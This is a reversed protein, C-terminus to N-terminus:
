RGQESTGSRRFRAASRQGSEEPLLPRWCAGHGSRCEDHAGEKGHIRHPGATRRQRSKGLEAREFPPM